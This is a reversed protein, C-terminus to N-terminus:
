KRLFLKQVRSGYVSTGRKEAEKSIYSNAKLFKAINVILVAVKYTSENIRTLSLADDLETDDQEIDVPIEM